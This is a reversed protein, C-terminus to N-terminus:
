RRPYISRIHPLPGPRRFFSLHQVHPSRRRQPGFSLLCTEQARGPSESLAVVPEKSFRRIPYYINRGSLSLEDPAM